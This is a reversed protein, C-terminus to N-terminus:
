KFEKKCKYDLKTDLEEEFELITDKSYANTIRSVMGDIICTLCAYAELEKGQIVDESKFSIITEKLQIDAKKRNEKQNRIKCHKLEIFCFVSDDFVACDCRTKDASSYICDDIKLFNLNEKTNNIVEFQGKEKIIYAPQNDIDDIIFFSKNLTSETCEKLKNVM